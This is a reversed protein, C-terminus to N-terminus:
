HRWNSPPLGGESGGGNKNEENENRTISGTRGGGGRIITRNLQDKGSVSPAGGGRISKKHATTNLVDPNMGSLLSTTDRMGRASNAPLNM